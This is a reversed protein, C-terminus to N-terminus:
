AQRAYDTLQGDIVALNNLKMIFKVNKGLFPGLIPEFNSL